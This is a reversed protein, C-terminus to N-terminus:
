QFQDNIIEIMVIGDLKRAKKQTLSDLRDAMEDIMIHTM